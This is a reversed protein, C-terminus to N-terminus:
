KDPKAMMDALHTTVFEMLPGILEQKRQGLEPADLHPHAALADYDQKIPADAAPKHLKAGLAAPIDIKQWKNVLEFRQEAQNYALTRLILAHRYVQVHKMGGRLGPDFAPCTLYPRVPTDIQMDVHMHGHLGALVNPYQDLLKQLRGADLFTPPVPPEHMLFLAPRDRNGQLDGRLWAWTPEDFVALGEERHDARDVSAFVLHLGGCNFSYQFPGFVQEFDQPWNDGPIIAYPAELHEDLLAKFFRQRRLSLPEPKDPDDPAAVYNNDGTIVVLDPDLEEGIYHLTKTFLEVGAPNLHVDTLWTFTFLPEGDVNAWAPPEAQLKVEFAEFFAARTAKDGPASSATAVALAALALWATATRNLRRANM